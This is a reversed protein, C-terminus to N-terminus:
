STHIGLIILTRMWLNDFIHILQLSASHCPEEPCQGSKLSYPRRQLLGCFWSIFPSWLSPMDNHLEQPTQSLLLLRWHQRLQCGPQYQRFCALLNSTSLPNNMMSEHPLQTQIIVSLSLSYARIYVYYCVRICTFSRSYVTFTYDHSTTSETLDSRRQCEPNTWLGQAAVSAPFIEVAKLAVCPSGKAETRLITCSRIRFVCARLM